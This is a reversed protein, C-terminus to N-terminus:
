GAFGPPNLFKEVGDEIIEVGAIMLGLDRGGASMTDSVRIRVIEHGSKPSLPVELMAPESVDFSCCACSLVFDETEVTIAQEPMINRYHVILKPRRRHALDIRVYMNHGNMWCFVPPLRLDEGYQEPAHLGVIEHRALTQSIDHGFMRSVMPTHCAAIATEAFERIFDSPRNESPTEAEFAKMYRAFDKWGGARKLVAFEDETTDAVVKEIFDQAHEALVHNDIFGTPMVYSLALPEFREFIGNKKLKDLCFRRIALFDFAREDSKSVTSGPRQLYYYGVSPDLFIRAASSIVDISFPHDEYFLNAPFRIGSDTLLSKRIIYRWPPFAWGAVAMFAEVSFNTSTVMGAFRTDIPSPFGENGNIDVTAYNVVYVDIDQERISKIIGDLVGAKLYDDSDVCWVYTGRAADIGNNRAAGQKQNLQRLVKVRPDSAALADLVLTTSDTSGDDVAVIEIDGVGQDLISAIAKGVFGEVNYCPIVFSIFPEATSVSPKPDLRSYHDVLVEWRANGVISTIEGHSHGRLRLAEAVAIKLKIDDHKRVIPAADEAPVWGRAVRLLTLAESESLSSAAFNEQICRASETWIQDPNTSSVGDLPFLVLPRDLLKCTKGMRIARHAWNADATLRLSNDFPGVDQYAERKVFLTNHCVPIGSILANVGWPEDLRLGANGDADLEIVRGGYIEAFETDYSAAVADFAGPLYCDGSGLIGILKGRAIAVGKNLAEYLGQDKQAVFQSVVHPFGSAIDYTADTSGGDIIICEVDRRNQEAISRLTYSLTDAVNLTAIVISFMPEAIDIARSSVKAPASWDIRDFVARTDHGSALMARSLAINLSVSKQAAVIRKVASADDGNEIFSSIDAIDSPSLDLKVFVDELGETASKLDHPDFGPFTNLVLM